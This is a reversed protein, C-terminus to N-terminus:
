GFSRPAEELHCKGCKKEGKNDCGIGPAGICTGKPKRVGAAAVVAVMAALVLVITFKMTFYTNYPLPQQTLSQQQSASKNDTHTLHILFLASLPNIRAKPRLLQPALPVPPILCAM